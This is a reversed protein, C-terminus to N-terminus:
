QTNITEPSKKVCFIILFVLSIVIIKYPLIRPAILINIKPRTSKTGIFSIKRAIFPNKIEPIDGM